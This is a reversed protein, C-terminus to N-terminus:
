LALNRTWAPSEFAHGGSLSSPTKVLHRALQNSTQTEAPKEVTGLCDYREFSVKRYNVRIIIGMLYAPYIVWERTGFSPYKGNLV